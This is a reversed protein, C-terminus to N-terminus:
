PAILTALAGRPDDSVIGDVGLEALARVREPDNATWALLPAGLRHAAGVAARSCLTHHLALVNARASGLLLPIRLPVAARLLAAGPSTVAAPWRLRAAGFRDHPYGIARPVDPALSAFARLVPPLASSFLVRGALGHMGIAAVIAAEYGPEKVDVHLGIAHPALLALAEDLHMGAAGADHAVVLGPSVDFEVLDAGASVAAELAERSNEPADASAGRHAIVLPRGPPRRLNM